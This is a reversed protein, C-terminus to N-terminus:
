ATGCVSAQDYQQSEKAERGSSGERGAAQQVADGTGSAKGNTGEQKEGVRPDGICRRVEPLEFKFDSKDTSFIYGDGSTSWGHWIIEKDREEFHTDVVEGTGLDYGDDESLKALDEKSCTLQWSKNINPQYVVIGRLDVREVFLAIPFEAGRVSIWDGVQVGLLPPRLEFWKTWGSDKTGLDNIFEIQYGYTIPKRTVSLVEYVKDTTVLGELGPLVKAVFAVLQGVDPKWNKNPLKEM